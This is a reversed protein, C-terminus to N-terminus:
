IARSNATFVFARAVASSSDFWTLFWANSDTRLAVASSAAAASAAAAAAARAYAGAAGATSDV